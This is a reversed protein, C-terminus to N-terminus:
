KNNSTSVFLGRKEKVLTEIGNEKLFTKIDVDDVNQLAKIVNEKKFFDRMAKGENDEAYDEVGTNENDGFTVISVEWLIVKGVTWYGEELMENNAGRKSDVYKVSDWVYNYGFSAQDLVGQKVQYWTRKANPVADFDSLEVNVYCGDSLDEFSTILGIPDKKDHQWCFAIKRRSAANAEISDTFCGQLMLDRSNDISAYDAFKIRLSYVPKGDRETQVAKVNDGGITLRKHFLGVHQKDKLQKLFLNMKHKHQAYTM